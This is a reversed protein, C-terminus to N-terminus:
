GEILEFSQTIKDKNPIDLNLKSSTSLKNLKSIKRSDFKNSLPINIQGM